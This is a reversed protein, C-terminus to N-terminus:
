GSSGTKGADSVERFIRQWEEMKRPGPVLEKAVGVEILDDLNIVLNLPEEVLHLTRVLKVKPNSASHTFRQNGAMLNPVDEAM